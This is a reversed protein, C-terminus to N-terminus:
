GPCFLIACGHAERVRNCLDALDDDTDVLTGEVAKGTEEDYRCGQLAM